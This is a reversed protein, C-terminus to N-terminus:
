ALVVLFRSSKGAETKGPWIARRKEFGTVVPVSSNFGWLADSISVDGLAGCTWSGSSSSLQLFGM